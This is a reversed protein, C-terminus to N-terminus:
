RRRILLGLAMLALSAPEPVITGLIGTPLFATGTSYTALRWTGSQSSAGTATWIVDVTAGAPLTVNLGTLDENLFDTGVNTFIHTYATSGNVLITVLGDHPGTASARTGHRLQDITGSYGPALALSLKVYDGAQGGWGTASIANSAPSGPTTLDPGTIWTASTVGPAVASNAHTLLDFTQNPGAITLGFFDTTAIPDAVATAALVLSILCVSLQRM